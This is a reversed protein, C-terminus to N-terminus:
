ILRVLTEIHTFIGQYREIHNFIGSYLEFFLINFKGFNQIHKICYMSYPLQVFRQATISISM